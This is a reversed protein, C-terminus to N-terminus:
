IAKFFTMSIWFFIGRDDAILFDTFDETSYVAYIKYIKDGTFDGLNILNDKTDKIQPKEILRAKFKTSCIM